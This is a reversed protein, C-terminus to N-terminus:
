PDLSRSGRARGGPMPVPILWWRSYAVEAITNYEDVMTNYVTVLSDHRAASRRVAPLTVQNWQDFRADHQSSGDFYGGRGGQRALVELADNELKMEDLWASISDIEQGMVGIRAELAEARAVDDRALFGQGVYLAGNLVGFVVVLGVVGAARGGLQGLIGALGGGHGGGTPLAIRGEAMGTAMRTVWVEAQQEAVGRRVLDATIEANARGSALQETIWRAVKTLEQRDGSM